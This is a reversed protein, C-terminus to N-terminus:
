TYGFRLEFYAFPIFAALARKRLGAIAPKAPSSQLLEVSPKETIVRKSTSSPAAVPVFAWSTCARM